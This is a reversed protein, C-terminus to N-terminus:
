GGWESEKGIRPQPIFMRVTEFDQLVSFQELAGLAYLQLQKNNEATVKVGRGFKLNHVQLETPTIIIADATDAGTIYSGLAALYM